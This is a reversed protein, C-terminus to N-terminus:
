CVIFKHFLELTSNTIISNFYPNGLINMEWKDIYMKLVQKDHLHSAIAEWFLDGINMSLIRIVSIYADDDTSEIDIHIPCM